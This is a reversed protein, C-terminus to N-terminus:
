IFNHKLMAITPFKITNTSMKTNFKNTNFCVHNRSLFCSLLVPPEEALYFLLQIVKLRPSPFLLFSVWRSNLSVM